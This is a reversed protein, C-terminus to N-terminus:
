PITSDYIQGDDIASIGKQLSHPVGVKVTGTCSGSRGDEARFSLQYVRGNGTGNREARVSASEGQIVADPSFPGASGGKVPEDQTVGTVTLTVSDGDPDTVGMIVIPVFQGNPQWLASPFAQAATCVPSANPPSITFVYASGSDPGKADDLFAGVVVRNGEIAVNWGFRAGAAGDTPILKASENLTGTWGGAPKVFVYASGSDDGKDNSLTAGVVITDGAIAVSYGFIDNEAGDSALLKASENLTGTWGGTPKVFVYASGSDFGKDDDWGAGVVVTDGAIAVSLGFQDGPAEDSAFLKASENLTGTWGGAPKVFVYASGSKFGKDTDEWAGVAVTDGSIAVSNGFRDGMAGDSALLKASENLTGTWGGTPKVFVYASGSDDGKDNSLTAGDVITDGAIAVSYGFIDNEAGDSALLKASENLTGTWGGAPKVFVYAAGSDSGIDDHLLAGVVVTDGSIAVSNGFFDGAAEDFARLRASQNLTGIWGGAPKVFVYAAGSDSGIDDHLLAGVVVTDGSIAVSWGFDDNAAGDSALLKASENIITPDITVPYVASRDDIQLALGGDLSIIKADLKHGMSDWAALGSYRLIPTGERDQFQVGQGEALWQPTLSSDFSLELRLPTRDSHEPRDALTFGQEIGQGNNIYWEVLNGRRYEVQNGNVIPQIAEVKVAHSEYGYARLSMGWHWGQNERGTPMMRVGQPTFEMRLRHRANVAELTGTHDKDHWAENVQYTAVEVAHQIHQWEEDSLSAPHAHAMRNGLSECMVLLVACGVLFGKRLLEARSQLRRRQVRESSMGMMVAGGSLTPVM